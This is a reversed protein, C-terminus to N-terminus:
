FQFVVRSFGPPTSSTRVTGNAEGREQELSNASAASDILSRSPSTPDVPAELVAQEARHQM